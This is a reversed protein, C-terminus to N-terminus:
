KFLNQIFELIGFSYTTDENFAQELTTDQLSTPYILSWWNEGNGSGIVIKLSDYVGEKMQIGQKNKESYMLKGIYGKVDYNYNNNQIINNCLELIEQINEEILKKSDQKTTANKTLNEIYTNVEKAITYKLLQDDIGDSNAVIHVRFYNNVNYENINTAYIIGFNLLILSILFMYFTKKYRM